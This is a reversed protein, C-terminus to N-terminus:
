PCKQFIYNSNVIIFFSYCFDVLREIVLQSNIMMKLSKVNFYIYDFFMRNEVLIWYNVKNPCAWESM